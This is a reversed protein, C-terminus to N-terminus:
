GKKSGFVSLYVHVVHWFFSFDGGKFIACFFAAAVLFLALLELVLVIATGAMMVADTVQM